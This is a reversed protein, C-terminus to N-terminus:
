SEDAPIREALQEHAQRGDAALQTREDATASDVARELRSLFTEDTPTDTQEALRVAETIIAEYPPCEITTAKQARKIVDVVLQYM